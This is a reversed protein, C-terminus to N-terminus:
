FLYIFLYFLNHCTIFLPFQLIMHFPFSRPGLSIFWWVCVLPQDADLSPPLTYITPNSPFGRNHAGEQFGHLENWCTSSGSLGASLLVQSFADLILGCFVCLRANPHRLIVHKKSSWTFAKIAQSHLESEDAM